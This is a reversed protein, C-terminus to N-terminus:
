LINDLKRKRKKERGEGKKKRRRQVRAHICVRSLLNSRYNIKSMTDVLQLSKNLITFKFSLHIKWQLVRISCTFSVNKMFQMMCDRIQRHLRKFLLLSSSQLFICIIQLNIFYFNCYNDDFLVTMIARTINNRWPFKSLIFMTFRSSLGTASNCIM